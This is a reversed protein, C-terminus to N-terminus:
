DASLWAYRQAPFGDLWDIAIGENGLRKRSAEGSQRPTSAAHERAATTEVAAVGAAVGDTWGAVAGVSTVSPSTRRSRPASAASEISPRPVAVGPDARAAVNM